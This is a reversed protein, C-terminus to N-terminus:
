MVRKIIAAVQETAMEVDENLVVFDYQGALHIETEANKCRKAIQAEDETGRGELRRRLEALSPVTIFILVAEPMIKKVQLAGQPDIELIVNTGAELHKAVQAKPTGYYEDHVCAWELLGDEDILKQFEQRTVFFYSTGEVEGKRPKRSTASVSVWMQPDRDTLKKVITGKGAGSPGSIVFLAGNQM